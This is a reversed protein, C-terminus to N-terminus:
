IGREKLMRCTMLSDVTNRAFRSVSKTIILDIKGQKCMKIMKNFGTRKFTNTGSIGEDTFVDVFIWNPNSQIYDTYYCVQNNYSTIQDEDDSSVRAYACVRLKRLPNKFDNKVLLPNVEDITIRKTARTM